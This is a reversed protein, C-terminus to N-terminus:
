LWCFVPVVYPCRYHWPKILWLFFLDLHLHYTRDCINLIFFMIWIRSLLQIVFLVTFFFHFQSHSFSQFINMLAKNSRLFLNGVTNMSRIPFICFPLYKMHQIHICCIRMNFVLIAYGTMTKPFFNLWLLNIGRWLNRCSTLEILNSRTCRQLNMLWVFHSCFDTYDIM